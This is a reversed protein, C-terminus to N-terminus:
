FRDTDDIFKAVVSVFEATSEYPLVNRGSIQRAQAHPFHQLYRDIRQKPSESQGSRSISSAEEGVVVLTPQTIASMDQAYNRRWFGALFSFVAYRSKLDTAGAELTDLWREDVDQAQEFLQRKSFDALFQRRRAYRYFVSGIAGSFFLNWALRQKWSTGSKTMVNWAPPGALVLGQALDPQRQVLAIAVPLLAGQVVVIAPTQIVTQWFYQLQEAWDEPTYAVPPMASDGCGLLDPNYVSCHGEPLWAEIFPHWFRRSLGVGIPHILLLPREANPSLHCEYACRQNKWTYFKPSFDM